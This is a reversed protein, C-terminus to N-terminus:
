KIYHLELFRWFNRLSRYTKWRIHWFKVIKQLAWWGNGRTGTAPLSQTTSLSLSCMVTRRCCPSQPPRSSTDWLLTGPGHPTDTRPAPAPTRWCRRSNWWSSGGQRSLHPGRSKGVFRVRQNPMQQELIRLSNSTEKGNKLYWFSWISMWIEEYYLPFHQVDFSGFNGRGIFNTKQKVSM